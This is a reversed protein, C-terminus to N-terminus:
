ETVSYFMIICKETSKEHILISETTLWLEYINMDTVIAVYPYTSETNIGGVAQVYKWANTMWGGNCGYNGYASSCDVLNQESMAVLKGTKRFLAGEIAAVASFAWCSGCGGQYKVPTVYGTATLNVSAPATQRKMESVEEDTIDRVNMGSDIESADLRNFIANFEEKSLDGFQNM